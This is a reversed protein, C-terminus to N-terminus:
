GPRFSRVAQEVDVRAHDFAADAGGAEIVFVHDRTVFVNVLYRHASPGEGLVYEFRRGALGGATRVDQRAIPRYRSETQLTRDITAAWFGLNGQM